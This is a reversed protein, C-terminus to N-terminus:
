RIVELGGTPLSEGRRSSPMASRSSTVFRQSLGVNDVMRRDCPSANVRYRASARSWDLSGRMWARLCGAYRALEADVASGFSPLRRELTLYAVVEADHWTVARELAEQLTCDQEQQIALVLNHVDGHQLEKQISLIDNCVCIVNNARLRLAQVVPHERVADPLYLGDTIAFLDFCTYVAGTFPRMALYTAPTPAIGLRRNECEWRSAAFYELVSRSFQGMWCAPARQSARTRLDHLAHCLPEDQSTPREGGLVAGFRAHLATMWDIRCGADTEDNQDDAFFLWAIFDSAIQLSEFPANPYVRAAFQGYEEHRRREAPTNPMFGYRCAWAITGRNVADAQANVAPLFPYGITPLVISKV